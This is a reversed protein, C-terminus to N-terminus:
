PTSDQGIAVQLTCDASSIGCSCLAYTIPNGTFVNTAGGTIDYAPIPLNVQAILADGVDYFAVSGRQGAASTSLRMNLGLVSLNDGDIAVNVAVQKTVVIGTTASAPFNDGSGGDLAIANITITGGVKYRRKSVGSETWYVDFNGNTYGHGAPLNCAATDADTKVWATVDKGAPMAVELGSVSDPSRTVQNSITLGPGSVTSSVNISPM